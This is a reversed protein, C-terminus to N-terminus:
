QMSELVIASRVYRSPYLCYLISVPLMELSKCYVMSVVFRSYALLDFAGKGDAIAYEELKDSDFHFGIPFQMIISIMSRKQIFGCRFFLQCVLLRQQFQNLFLVYIHDNCYLWRRNNPRNIPVIKVCCQVGQAAVCNLM